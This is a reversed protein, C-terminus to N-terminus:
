ADAQKIINEPALPLKLVMLLHIVFYITKAMGMGLMPFGYFLFLIITQTKVTEIILRDVSKISSQKELL